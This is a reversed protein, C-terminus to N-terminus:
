NCPCDSRARPSIRCSSRRHGPGAARSVHRLRRVRWDDISTIGSRSSFLVVSLLPAPSALLQLQGRQLSQLAEGPSGIPMHAITLGDPRAVQALYNAAVKGGAGPMNEVVVAPHGPLHRGLHTALLRAHLDYNGGPSFAVIIRITEGAFTHLSTDGGGKACASLM